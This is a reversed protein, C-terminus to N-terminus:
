FKASNDSNAHNQRSPNVKSTNQSTVTGTSGGNKSSVTAASITITTTYKGDKGVWPKIRRIYGNRPSRLMPILALKDEINTLSIALQALQYDRDRVSQAYQQQQRSYEQQTQNEQQQRRAENLNADYETLQRRNQAATLRSEAVNLESEALRVNIQLQQLEQQQLIASANLKAKSQDLASNAQDLQSRLQNLKAGEHQLIEPSLKMDQMSQIMQEQETVKQSAIQLGAEANESEARREPNDTKLLQTRAELLSQAQSVKMKSQAIAASEESFIAPPLPKIGLAQTPKFPQPITKSKLNDIQLKVSKKQKDLRDRETSNDSIVDGKKIEQNLKVKLFSPNDVSISMRLPRNQQLSSIASDDVNDSTGLSLEGRQPLKETDPESTNKIVAKSQAEAVAAQNQPYYKTTFILGALGISIYTILNNTNFEKM